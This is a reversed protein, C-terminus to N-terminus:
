VWPNNDFAMASALFLNGTVRWFHGKCLHFSDGLSTTAKINGEVAYCAAFAYRVMLIIGPIVLLVLGVIVALSWLFNLWWMRPWFRFGAGITAGFSPRNGHWM